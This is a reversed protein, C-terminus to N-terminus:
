GTTADGCRDATLRSASTNTTSSVERDISADRAGSVGVLNSRALAIARANSLASGAAATPIAEM